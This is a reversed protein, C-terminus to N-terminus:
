RGSGSRYLPLYGKMDKNPQTQKEGKITEEIITAFPEKRGHISHTASFDSDIVEYMPPNLPQRDWSQYSISGLIEVKARNKAIVHIARGETKMGLIWVQGGNVSTMPYKPAEPNYQRLWCKEGPGVELTGRGSVDELFFRSGPKGPKRPKGAGVNLNRFVLPKDTRNDTLYFERAPAAGKGLTFFGEIVVAPSKINEFVFLSDGVSNVIPDTIVVENEMGLIRNVSGHVRISKSIKYWGWPYLKEDQGWQYDAPKDKENIVEGRPKRFCVTTKGKAAANDFAAQVANSDDEATWHIIEWKSLDNEWPIEPTEEIPLRLSAPKAGFLSLGKGEFFEDLRAGPVFSKDNKQLLNAYGNQQIDRLYLRETNNIIATANSSGGTLNADILELASENIAAPVSNRSTLKRVTMVGKNFIGVERQGELTLHELVMSFCSSARVGRDFGIVTVHQIFGPGFQHQNLDLGTSGRREPDSSRITVHYMAGNNNTMFRIGSAGPNGTGVDVSLNKVYNHMADGTGGTTSYFLALVPLPNASDQFDASHDALRIITGAESQGQFALFRDPSHARSGVNLMKKVLYTGNPFYLIRNKGKCEDIAKQLAATDDTKGDGKAGYLAKVDYVGAEQPYVINEAWLRPSILTSTLVLILSLTTKM